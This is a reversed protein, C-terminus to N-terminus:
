ATREPNQLFMPWDQYSAAIAPAPAVAATVARLSGLGAAHPRNGCPVVACRLPKAEHSARVLFADITIQAMRDLFMLCRPPYIPDGRDPVPGSQWRAWLHRASPPGGRPGSVAGPPDNARLVRGPM